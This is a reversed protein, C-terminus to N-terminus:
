LLLKPLGRMRQDKKSQASNNPGRRAEKSRYSLSWKKSM